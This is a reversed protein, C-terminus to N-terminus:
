LFQYLHLETSARMMYAEFMKCVCYKFYRGCYPRYRAPFMVAIERLKHQLIINVTMDMLYTVFWVFNSSLVYLIQIKNNLFKDLFWWM